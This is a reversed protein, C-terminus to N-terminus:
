VKGETLALAAAIMRAKRVDSCRCYEELANGVVFRITGDAVPVEMVTYKDEDVPADAATINKQRAIWDSLRLVITEGVAVQASYGSIQSLPLWMTDDNYVVQIARPTAHRFEARIDVPM